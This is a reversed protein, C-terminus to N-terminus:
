QKETVIVDDILYDNGFKGRAIQEAEERSHAELTYEDSMLLKVTYTTTGKFAKYREYNPRYETSDVSIEQVITSGKMGYEEFVVYINGTELDYFSQSEGYDEYLEFRKDKFWDQHLM